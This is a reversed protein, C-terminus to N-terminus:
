DSSFPGSVAPRKRQLEGTEELGAEAQAVATEGASAITAVAATAAVLVAAVTQGRPDASIDAQDL